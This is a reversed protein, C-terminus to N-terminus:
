RIEPYDFSSHQCLGKDAADPPDDSNCTRVRHHNPLRSALCGGTHYPNTCFGNVCESGERVKDKCDFVSVCRLGQGYASPIWLSCLFLYPLASSLSTELKM